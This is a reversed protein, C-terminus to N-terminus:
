LDSLRLKTDAGKWASNFEGEVWAADWEKQQVNLCNMLGFLSRPNRPNRQLDDRFVQEGEDPKNAALLAAGLSERVPYYWDAPEDYNLADQMLVAKRWHAIAGEKQGRAAAIRADVVEMAVGLLDKAANFGGFNADAPLASAEKSLLNRETAAKDAEGRAAFAMARSYRWMAHTGRPAKPPELSSLIHDWKAFRVDVWIPTFLFGDLMPMMKVHPELRKALADAAAKAEEYRGAMCAAMALFHENHSHYMLDYLSGEKEAKEAYVRDVHAAEVNNKVAADYDGTRIYIHAPMHVLHGAQPVMTELRHASPLAREPHPSAEVAHIYYHNAGAHDPDRKLVSELVALIEATGEAPKGDLAWLKWPNLDMLSEAYFTAADLDDPYKQSLSKMATAYNRALLKYDPAANATYRAALAAVYDVEVQPALEALKRAKQVTLFALKERAADVDQNYNPGVAMAIGWLPMPSAPNLEAARQFARAAEEHNFGYLLTIGQDFYAQAEPNGSQIAHHQRGVATLSLDPGSEEPKESQAAVHLSSVCTLLLCAPLFRM